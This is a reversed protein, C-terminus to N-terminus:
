KKNNNANTVEKYVEITRKANNTWTLERISEYGLFGMEIRLNRNEILLKLKEALQLYDKPKVLFGNKGDTIIESIGEGETGIIPKKFLALHKM